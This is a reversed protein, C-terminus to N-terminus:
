MAPFLFGIVGGCLVILGPNIELKFSLFCAISAMIFASIPEMGFLIEANMYMVSVLLAIAALNMYKIPYEFRGDGMFKKGLLMVLVFLVIGPLLLAAVAAVAGLPGLKSGIYAAMYMPAVYPNHQAFSMMNLYETQGVWYNMFAFDRMVAIAGASGGFGALGASLMSIILTFFNLEIM